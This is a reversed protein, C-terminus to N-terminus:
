PKIIGMTEECSLGRNVLLLIFLVRVGESMRSRARVLQPPSVRAVAPSALPPLVLPWHQLTFPSCAGHVVAQPWFGSLPLLQVLAGFALTPEKVVNGQSGVPAQM